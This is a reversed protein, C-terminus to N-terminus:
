LAPTGCRQRRLSIPVLPRTYRRLTRVSWQRADGSVGDMGM